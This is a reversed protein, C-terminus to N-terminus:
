IYYTHTYQVVPGPQSQCPRAQYQGLEARFNGSKSFKTCDQGEPKNFFNLARGDRAKVPALGLRTGDDFPRISLGEGIGEIEMKKKLRRAM